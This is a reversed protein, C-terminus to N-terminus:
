FDSWEFSTICISPLLGQPDCKVYAQGQQAKNQGAPMSTMKTLSERMANGMEARGGDELHSPEQTRPQSEIAARKEFQSKTNEEVVPAAM